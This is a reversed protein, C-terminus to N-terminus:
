IKYLYSFNEIQVEPNLHKELLLTGSILVIDLIKRNFSTFVTRTLNTSSYRNSFLVMM